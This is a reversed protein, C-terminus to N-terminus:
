RLYLSILDRLRLFSTHSRSRTKIIELRQITRERKREDRPARIVGGKGEDEGLTGILNASGCVSTHWSYFLAFFHREGFVFAFDDEDDVCGGFATERGL